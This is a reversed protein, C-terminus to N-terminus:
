RRGLTPSASMQFTRTMASSTICSKGRQTSGKAICSCWAGAGAGLAAGRSHVAHKSNIAFLGAGWDEFKANQAAYDSAVGFHFGGSPWIGSKDMSSLLDPNYFADAGRASRDGLTASWGFGPKVNNPTRGVLLDEVAARAEAAPDTQRSGRRFLWGEYEPSRLHLAKRKDANLRQEYDTTGEKYADTSDPHVYGMQKMRKLTDADIRGEDGDPAAKHLLARNMREYKQRWRVDFTVTALYREPVGALHRKAPKLITVKPLAAYTADNRKTRHPVQEDDYFPFSPTDYSPPANPAEEGRVWSRVRLMKNPDFIEARTALSETAKQLKTGMGRGKGEGAEEGAVVTQLRSAGDGIM